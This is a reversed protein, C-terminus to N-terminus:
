KEISMYLVAFIIALTVVGGICLLMIITLINELM